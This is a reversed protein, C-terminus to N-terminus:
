RFLTNRNLMERERENGRYIVITRPSRPIQSQFPALLLAAVLLNCHSAVSRRFRKVSRYADASHCYEEIRTYSNQRRKSYLIKSSQSYYLSGDLLKSDIQLTLSVFVEKNLPIFTLLNSYNHKSRFQALIILHMLLHYVIKKNLFPAFIM